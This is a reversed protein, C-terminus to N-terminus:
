LIKTKKVVGYGAVLLREPNVRLIGQGMVIQPKGELCFAKKFVSNDPIFTKYFTSGGVLVRLMNGISFCDDFFEFRLYLFSWLINQIM